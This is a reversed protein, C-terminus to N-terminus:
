EQPFTGNPPIVRIQNAHPIHMGMRRSAQVEVRAHAAWTSQELQLRGWDIELQESRQTQKQLEM